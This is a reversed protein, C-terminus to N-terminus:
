KKKLKWEKSLRKAEAVQDSTMNQAILERQKVAGGVRGDHAAIDLWMYAQVPDKLLGKGNAYCLGLSLQAMFDGNEASKRWFDVAKVGDQPVGLGKFYSDGMEYQSASDGREASKSLLKVAESYNQAVGEGKKYCLGLMYAADDSGAEYAKRFWKYSEAYDQKVGGGGQNYCVGLWYQSSSNGEDAEKRLKEISVKKIADEASVETGFSMLMFLVLLMTSLISSKQIKM